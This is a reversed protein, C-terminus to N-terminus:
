LALFSAGQEKIVSSGEFNLGNTALLSALSYGKIHLVKDKLTIEEDAPAFFDLLEAVRFLKAFDGTIILDPELSSEGVNQVNCEKLIKVSASIRASEAKALNKTAFEEDGFRLMEPFALGHEILVLVSNPCLTLLTDSLLSWKQPTEPLGFAQKFHISGTARVEFEDEYERSLSVIAGEIKEALDQPVIFVLEKKGDELSVVEPTFANLRNACINLLMDFTSIKKRPPEHM